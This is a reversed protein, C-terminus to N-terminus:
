ICAQHHDAGVAWRQMLLLLHLFKKKSDNRSELSELLPRRGIRTFAFSGLTRRRGLGFGRNQRLKRTQLIYYEIIEEVIIEILLRTLASPRQRKALNQEL